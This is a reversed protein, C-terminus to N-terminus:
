KGVAARMAAAREAGAGRLATNVDIPKSAIALASDVMATRHQRIRQMEAKDRLITNKSDEFATGWDSMEIEDRISHTWDRIEDASVVAHELDISASGPPLLKRALDGSVSIPGNVSDVGCIVNDGRSTVGPRAFFFTTRDEGNVELAVKGDLQSNIDRVKDVLAATKQELTQEAVPQAEPSQPADGGGVAVSDTGRDRDTLGPGEM